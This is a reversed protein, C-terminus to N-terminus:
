SAKTKYCLYCALNRYLFIMVLLNGADRGLENLPDLGLM